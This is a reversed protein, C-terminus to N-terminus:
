EEWIEKLINHIAKRIKNRELRITLKKNYTTKCPWGWLKNSGYEKRKNSKWAARYGHSM